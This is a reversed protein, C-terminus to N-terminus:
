SMSEYEYNLIIRKRKFNRNIVNVSHPFEMSFFILRGPKSEVSIKNFEDIHFITEGGMDKMDTFYLLAKYNKRKSLNDIVDLHKPVYDGKEMCWMLPKSRNLLKFDIFFDKIQQNILLIQEHFPSKENFKHCPFLFLEESSFSSNITLKFHQFNWFNEYYIFENVLHEIFDSEIFNDLVFVKNEYNHTIEQLM